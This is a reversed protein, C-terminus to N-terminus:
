SDAGMEDLDLDDVLEQAHTWHVVMEMCGDYDPCIRPSCIGEWPGRPPEWPALGCTYLNHGAGGLIRELGKLKIIAWLLVKAISDKVTM